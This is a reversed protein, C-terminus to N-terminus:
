LLGVDGVAEEGVDGVRRVVGRGDGEGPVVGHLLYGVAM